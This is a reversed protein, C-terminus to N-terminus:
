DVTFNPIVEAAALDERYISEDNVSRPRRAASDSDAWINDGIKPPCKPLQNDLVVVPEYEQSLSVLEDGSSAGNLQGAVDLVVVVIVVCHCLFCKTHLCPKRPWQPNPPKPTQPGGGLPTTTCTVSAAMKIVEDKWHLCVSGSTIWKIKDSLKM